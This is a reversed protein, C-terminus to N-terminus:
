DNVPRAAKAVGESRQAVTGAVANLAVALLLVAGGVFTATSATEGLYLFVWLPALLVEILSLLTSEAAPLVSSGLTYLTMGLGLLVAGIGMAVGMDWGSARIPEGQTLLVLAAALASFVGGLMSAPLMDGVRGWRLAVTFAGFGLASLLAAINGAMAGM